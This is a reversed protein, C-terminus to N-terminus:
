RISSIFSLNIDKFVESFLDRSFFNVFVTVFERTFIHKIVVTTRRTIPLM